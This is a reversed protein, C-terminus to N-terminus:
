RQKKINRKIDFKKGCSLCHGKLRKSGIGGCLLGLPGLCIAGCCGGGYDYGQRDIHINTSGCKPCKTKAETM